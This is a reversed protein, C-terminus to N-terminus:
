KPSPLSMDTDIKVPLNLIGIVYTRIMQNRSVCGDYDM